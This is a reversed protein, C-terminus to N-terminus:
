NLEEAQGSSIYIVHEAVNTARDAVREYNHAIWLLYTGLRAFEPDRRMMELVQEVVAEEAQDV